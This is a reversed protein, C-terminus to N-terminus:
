APRPCTPFPPAEGTFTGVLPPAQDLAANVNGMGDLFHHWSDLRAAQCGPSFVPQPPSPRPPREGSRLNLAPVAPDDTPAVDCMGTEEGHTLVVFVPYQESRGAVMAWGEFEDDPHPSVVYAMSTKVTTPPAAAASIPVLGSGLLALPLLLRRLGDGVTDRRPSGDAPPPVM